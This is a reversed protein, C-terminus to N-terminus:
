SLRDCQCTTKSAPHTFLSQEQKKVMDMYNLYFAQARIVNHPPVDKANQNTIKTSLIM